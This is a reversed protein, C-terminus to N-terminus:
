RRFTYIELDGFLKHQILSYRQNLEALVPHTLEGSAQYEAIARSFVVFWVTDEESVVDELSNVPYLEIAHQSALAYTDNHSGTEDPLFYQERDPDYFHAPFYSLKNDHLILDDAANEQLYKTAIRFDSRPFESFSYYSPLSIAALVIFASAILPGIGKKWRLAIIWGALVFYGLMSTIFGRPVFVPRMLYSAVFLLAPLGLWLLLTFGIGDVKRVKYTELSVMVMCQLSLVAAIALLWGELPMFAHTQMVAQLVEIFGPVPTYFATQIKQIQGPVHILWPISFILIAAQAIVLNRLSRWNRKFLLYFDPLVLGFIALSQSYMAATGAVVLGVWLWLPKKPKELIQLRVFFWYYTIQTLALLGYMRMEQAHYIQFPSIVTILAAWMAASIGALRRTLDFVVLVTGMSLLVSLLRLAFPTQGLNLWFHLLFYYLPPETDAATGSVIDALSQESLFFSFAEDYWLDRTELGYLRLALALLIIAGFLFWDKTKM